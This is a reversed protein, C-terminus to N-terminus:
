LDSSISLLEGRFDRRFSAIDDKTLWFRINDIYRPLDPHSMLYEASNALIRSAPIGVCLEQTATEAVTPHPRTPAGCFPLENCGESHQLVGQVSLIPGCAEPDQKGKEGPVIEFTVHVHALAGLSFAHTSRSKAKRLPKQTAAAPDPYLRTSKCEEVGSPICWPDVVLLSPAIASTWAGVRREGSAPCRCHRDPDATLSIKRGATRTLLLRHEVAM